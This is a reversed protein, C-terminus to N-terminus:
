YREIISVYEASCRSMIYTQDETNLDHISQNGIELEADYM